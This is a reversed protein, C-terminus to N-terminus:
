PCPVTRPPSSRGNMHSKMYRSASEYLTLEARHTEYFAERHKPKQQQYQEYVKRHKIILEAKEIHTDLMKMRREIPKSLGRIDSLRGYYETVVNQFPRCRPAPNYFGTGASKQLASGFSTDSM